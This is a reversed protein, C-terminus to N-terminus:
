SMSVDIDLKIKAKGRSLILQQGLLARKGIVLVEPIIGRTNNKVNQLMGNVFDNLFWRDADVIRLLKFFHLEEATTCKGFFNSYINAKVFKNKLTEVM